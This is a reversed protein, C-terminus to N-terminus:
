RSFQISQLRTKDSFPIYVFVSSFGDQILNIDVVVVHELEQQLLLLCYRNSLEWSKERKFFKEIPIM